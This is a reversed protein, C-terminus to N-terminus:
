NSWGLIFGELNKKKKGKCKHFLCVMFFEINIRIVVLTKVDVLKNACDIAMLCLLAAAFELAIRSILGFLM